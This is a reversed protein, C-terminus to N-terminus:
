GGFLLTYLDHDKDPNMFKDPGNFLNEDNGYLNTYAFRRSGGTNGTNTEINGLIITFFFKNEVFYEYPDVYKYEVYEARYRPGIDYYTSISSVLLEDIIPGVGQPPLPEGESSYENGRTIRTKNVMTPLLEDKLIKYNDKRMEDTHLGAISKVNDLVSINVGFFEDLINVTEEHETDRTIIGDFLRDPSYYDYTSFEIIRDVDSINEIPIIINGQLYWIMLVIGLMAFSLFILVVIWVYEKSEEAPFLGLLLAIASGIITGFLGVNFFKKSNKIIEKEKGKKFNIVLLRLALLIIPLSLYHIWDNM